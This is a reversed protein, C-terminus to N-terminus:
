FETSETNRGFDNQFLVFPFPSKGAVNNEKPVSRPLWPVLGFCCSLSPFFGFKELQRLLMQWHNVSDFLMGTKTESSLDTWTFSVLPEYTALSYLGSFCNRPSTHLSPLAPSLLLQLQFSDDAPPLQGPGLQRYPLGPGPLPSAKFMYCQFQSQFDM